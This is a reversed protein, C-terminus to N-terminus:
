GRPLGEGFIAQYMVYPWVIGAVGAILLQQAPHVDERGLQREWAQAEHAKGAWFAAVLLYFGLSIWLLKM